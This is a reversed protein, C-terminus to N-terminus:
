FSHSAAKKKDMGLFHAFTCIKFIFFKLMFIKEARYTSIVIKRLYKAIKRGNNCSKSQFVM